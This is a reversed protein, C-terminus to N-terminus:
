KICLLNLSDNLCKFALSLSFFARWVIFGENKASQNKLWATKKIMNAYIENLEQKWLPCLSM